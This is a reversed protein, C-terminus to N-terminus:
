EALVHVYHPVPIQRSVGAVGVYARDREPFFMSQVLQDTLGADDAWRVFTMDPCDEPANRYDEGLKLRVAKRLLQTIRLYGFVSEPDSRDVRLPDSPVKGTIRDRLSFRVKVLKATNPDSDNEFRTLRTALSVEHAYRRFYAPNALVLFPRDVSTVFLEGESDVEQFKVTGKCVMRLRDLNPCVHCPVGNFYSIAIEAEVAARDEESLASRGDENATELRRVAFNTGMESSYRAEFDRLSLDAREGIAIAACLRCGEM